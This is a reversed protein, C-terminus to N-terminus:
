RKMMNEMNTTDQEGTLLDRASQTKAHLLTKRRMTPSGKLPSDGEESVRM